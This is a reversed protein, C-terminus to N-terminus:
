GLGMFPLLMAGASVFVFAGVITSDFSLLM